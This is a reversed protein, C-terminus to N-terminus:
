TRRKIYVGAFLGSFVAPLFIIGIGTKPIQTPKESTTTGGKEQATNVNGNTNFNVQQGAAPTVSTSSQQALLGEARGDKKVIPSRIRM